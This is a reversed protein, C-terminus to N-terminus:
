CKYDGLKIEPFLIAKFTMEVEDDTIKEITPEPHRLVNETTM